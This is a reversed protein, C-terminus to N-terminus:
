SGRLHQVLLVVFPWDAALLRLCGENRLRGGAPPPPRLMAWGSSTLQMPPNPPESGIRSARVLTTFCVSGTAM